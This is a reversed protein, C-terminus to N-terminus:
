FIVLKLSVSYQGDNLIMEFLELLLAKVAHNGNEFWNLLGAAQGETLAFGEGSEKVLKKLLKAAWKGQNKICSNTVLPVYERYAETALADTCALSRIAPSSQSAEAILCKLTSELVYKLGHRPYHWALLEGVM